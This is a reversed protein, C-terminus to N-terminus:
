GCMQTFFLLLPRNVTNRCVIRLLNCVFSFSTFGFKLSAQVFGDRFQALPQLRHHTSV